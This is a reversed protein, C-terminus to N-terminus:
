RLTMRGNVTSRRRSQTRSAVLDAYSFRLVSPAAAGKRVALDPNEKQLVEGISKAARWPSEACMLGFRSRYTLAKESFTRSIKSAEVELRLDFFKVAGVHM